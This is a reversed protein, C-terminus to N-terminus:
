YSDPSVGAIHGAGYLAGTMMAPVGESQPKDYFMTCSSIGKQLLLPTFIVKAAPRTEWIRRIGPGRRALIGVCDFSLCALVVLKYLNSCGVFM